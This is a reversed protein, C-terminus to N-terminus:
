DRQYYHPYMSLRDVLVVITTVGVSLFSVELKLFLFCVVFLLGILSNDSFFDQILSGISAYSSGGEVVASRSKANMEKVKRRVENDEMVRRIGSEIEEATVICTNAKPDSLSKVYDLKIEVALGFETVMKFANMQQEAYM